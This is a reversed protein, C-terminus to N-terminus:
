VSLRLDLDPPGPPTRGRGRAHFSRIEWITLAITLIVMDVMVMIDNEWWITMALHYFILLYKLLKLLNWRCFFGSYYFNKHDFKSQGNQGHFNKFKPTKSITKTLIPKVM